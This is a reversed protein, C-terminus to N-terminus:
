RALPLNKEAARIEQEIAAVDLDVDGGKKGMRKGRKSGDRAATLKDPNDRLQTLKEAVKDAGLETARAIGEDLRQKATDLDGAQAHARASMKYLKLQGSAVKGHGKKGKKFKKGKKGKKLADDGGRAAAREAKITEFQSKLTAEFQPDLQLNLVTDLHAAATAPEGKALHHHALQLHGRTWTHVAEAQARTSDDLGELFREHHARKDGKGDGASATLPLALAFLALAALILALPRFSRRHSRSRSM